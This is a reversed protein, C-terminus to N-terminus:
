SEFGARREQEDVRMTLQFLEDEGAPLREPLVLEAAKVTVPQVFPLVEIWRQAIDLRQDRAGLRPHAPLSAHAQGGAPELDGAGPAGEREHIGGDGGIAFLWAQPGSVFRPCEGTDCGDRRQQRSAGGGALPADITTVVRIRSSRIELLVRLAARARSTMTPSTMM